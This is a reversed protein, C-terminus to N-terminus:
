WRDPPLLGHEPNIDLAVSRVWYEKELELIKAFIERNDTSKTDTVSLDGSAIWTGWPPLTLDRDTDIGPVWSWTKVAYRRKFEGEIEINDLPWVAALSSLDRRWGLDLGLRVEAGKLDPLDHNGLAWIKPTIPKDSTQVYQNCHFRLWSVRSEYSLQAQKSATELYDRKVVGCELLPNSKPWNVPDFPDDEEDLECLFPFLTDDDIGSDPDLVSKCYISEGRWITSRENGATTVVCVLSQRRKGCGTMLKNWIERDIERWAHLEEVILCHIRLSDATRSDSSLPKFFGGIKPFVVSNAMLRVDGIDCLGSRESFKRADGWCFM